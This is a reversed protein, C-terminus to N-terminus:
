GRSANAIGNAIANAIDGPCLARPTIRDHITIAIVRTVKIVRIQRKARPERKTVSLCPCIRRM